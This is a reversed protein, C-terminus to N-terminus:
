FDISFVVMCVCVNKQELDIEMIVNIICNFFNMFCLKGTSECFWDFVYKLM